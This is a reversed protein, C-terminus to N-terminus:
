EALASEPSGDHRPPAPVSEEDKSTRRAALGTMGFATLAAAVAAGVGCVLFATGFGSGLADLALGHAASGPTGPPLSNM